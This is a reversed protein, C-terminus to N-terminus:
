KSGRQGKDPGTNGPSDTGAPPAMAADAAATAPDAAAAAADAPAAMPDAPAAMADAPAAAPDVVAADVPATETTVTTDAAPAAEEAPKQGCAALGMLAAAAAIAIVKQSM